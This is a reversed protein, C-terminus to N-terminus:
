SRRTKRSSNLIAVRAGKALLETLTNEALVKMKTLDIPKSTKPDLPINLDARLLVVKDKFDFDDMTKFGVKIKNMQERIEERVNGRSTKYAM